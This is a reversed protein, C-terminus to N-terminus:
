NWNDSTAVINSVEEASVEQDAFDEKESDWTKILIEHPKFNHFFGSHINNEVDLLLM